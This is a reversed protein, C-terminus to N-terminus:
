ISTGGKLKKLILEKSVNENTKVEDMLRGLAIDEYQEDNIAIIEGGLEKALESLLRNSRKDIKIIIAGM